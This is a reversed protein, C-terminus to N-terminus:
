GLLWGVGLLFLVGGILVFMNRADYDRHTEPILDAAAIYLFSGASLALLAGLVGQPIGQLLFYAVIAGVPTALAVAWAWVLARARNLGAHFLIGLISIGAPVKHSIVALAAIIGLSLSSEFSIGIIVGDLLSHFGLGLFASVGLAYHSSEEEHHFHSLVNHELVYFILFSVLAYTSADETLQGAEPLLHGFAAALLIGVALSILFTSNKRAWSEKYLILYIGALAALAALSGYLLVNILPSTM